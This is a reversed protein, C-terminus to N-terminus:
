RGALAVVQKAQGAARAQRRKCRDTPPYWIGISRILASLCNLVTSRQVICASVHGHFYKELHRRGCAPTNISEVMIPTCQVHLIMM